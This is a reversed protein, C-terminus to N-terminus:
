REEIGVYVTPPIAEYRDESVAERATEQRNEDLTLLFVQSDYGPQAEGVPKREDTYRAYKGEHDRIYVPEEILATQVSVSELALSSPLAEGIMRLEIYARGEAQYARAMCYVPHATPNAIVLDLGQDSVAAEQGIDCYDVPYAAAHRERIEMGALLAARYLATSVQCVGGGVGSVEIGYAPERATLYGAEATRRGVTENFSLVDGAEIIAGHFAAAALQANNYSAEDSAIEMVLRTRLIAADELERQYVKPEIEQPVLVMQVPTLSKVAQEIQVRLPQTHLALGMVEQSFVFPTSSGPKFTVDADVPDREIDAAIRELLADVPEMDYVIVPEANVPNRRLELMQLYRSVMNGSRGKQWLPDLTAEEDVALSVDQATLTYTQGMHTMEFRWGAIAEATMRDLLIRADEQTAGGLPYHDLSTGVLYTHMYPQTQTYIYVTAAGVLVAAFFIVLSIVAAGNMHKKTKKKKKKPTNPKPPAKKPEAKPPTYGAQTMTPM